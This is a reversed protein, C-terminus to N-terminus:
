IIDNEIIKRIKNVVMNYSIIQIRKVLDKYYIINNCNLFLSFKSIIIDNNLIIANKVIDQFRNKIITWHIDKHKIKIKLIKPIKFHSYIADYVIKNQEKIFLILKNGTYIMNNNKSNRSPENQNEPNSDNSLHTNEISENNSKENNSNDSSAEKETINKDILFVDDLINIENEEQDVNVDNLKNKNDYEDIKDKLSQLDVIQYNEVTKNIVDLIAVANEISCFYNHELVLLCLALDCYDNWDNIVQTYLKKKIYRRVSSININNKRAVATFNKLIIFDEILNNGELIHENCKIHEKSCIYRRIRFFVHNCLQSLLMWKRGYIKYLSDILIKDDTSFEKFNHPYCRSYIIDLTFTFNRYPLFTCVYQSIEILYKLYNKKTLVKQFNEFTFSRIRLFKYIAYKMAIYENDQIRGYRFQIKMKASKKSVRDPTAHTCARYVQKKSAPPLRHYEWATIKQQNDLYQDSIETFTPLDWFYLIKNKRIEIKETAIFNEFDEAPPETPNHKKLIEDLFINDIPIYKFRSPDFQTILSNKNVFHKSESPPM